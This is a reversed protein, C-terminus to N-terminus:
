LIYLFHYYSCDLCCNFNKGYLHFNMFDGERQNYKEDPITYKEIASTNEYGLRNSASTDLVHIKMGSFLLISINHHFSFFLKYKFDKFSRGSCLISYSIKKKSLYQMGDVVGLKELTANDDTLSSVFKGDKDRLEMRMRDISSGIVLM